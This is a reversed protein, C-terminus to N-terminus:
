ITIIDVQNKYQILNKKKTVPYLLNHNIKNRKFLKNFYNIINKTRLGHKM